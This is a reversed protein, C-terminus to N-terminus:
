GEKLGLIAYHLRGKTVDAVVKTVDEEINVQVSVM